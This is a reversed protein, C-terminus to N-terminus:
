ATVLRRWAATFGFGAHYLTIGLAGGLILQAGRRWHYADTLMVAGVVLGLAAAVAAWASLPPLRRLPVSGQYEATAATM